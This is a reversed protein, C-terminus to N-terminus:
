SLYDIRTVLIHGKEHKNNITLKNLDNIKKKM